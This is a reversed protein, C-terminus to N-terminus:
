QYEQEGSEGLGLNVASSGGHSGKAETSAVVRSWAHRGADCRKSGIAVAITEPIAEAIAKPVAEALAAEGGTEGVAIMMGSVTLDAIVM